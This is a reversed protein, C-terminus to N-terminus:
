RQAAVIAAGNAQLHPICDMWHKRIGEGLIRSLVGNLICRAPPCGIVGGSLTINTIGGGGRQIVDTVMEEVAEWAPKVAVAWDTATLSVEASDGDTDPIAVVAEAETEGVITRAMLRPQGEEDDEEKWGAFTMSACPLDSLPDSLTPSAELDQEKRGQDGAGQLEGEEDAALKAAGNEGFLRLKLREAALLAQLRTKDSTADGGAAEM